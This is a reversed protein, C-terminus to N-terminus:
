PGIVRTSGTFAGACTGLEFRPEPDPENVNVPDNWDLATM